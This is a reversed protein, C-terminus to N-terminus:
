GRHDSGAVTSGPLRLAARSARLTARGPAVSKKKSDSGSTYAAYWGVAADASQDPNGFLYIENRGPPFSLSLLQIAFDRLRMVYSRPGGDGPDDVLFEISKFGLKLIGQLPLSTGVKGDAGPLKVGLYVVPDAGAPTPSWGALLELTLAASGALAGLSGLDIMYDLGYWPEVLKSQDLPAGISVFGLTSPDGAPLTTQESALAPDPTTILRRLRVPFRAALSDARAVSNAIDFSLDGDKLTFVTTGVPDALSFAMGVALNGFRLYGDTIVPPVVRDDQHPGWCFPDFGDAEYFRLAGSMQFTADVAVDSSNPDAAKSTLLQISLVEASLLAGGGDLLFLYDEHSTFVYSDHKSGDPATQEQYAGTLILNNGHDAPFLRTEAGFLRNVMLEVRSAFGSIASNHFAITLQLVRFAFAIDSSFYQDVPNEYDILGFMATQNFNLLPPAPAQQVTIQFPTVSFGIHHAYFSKPDIGAALAQLPGPLADLPVGVSLALIGTWGSDVVIRNFEAYASDTRARADAIVAAIDDSAHQVGDASAAPSWTWAGPDAALDALSRGLMFKFIIYSNPQPKRDPNSWGDPSLLFAWDHVLATLLGGQRGFVNIQDDTLTSVATKLGIVFDTRTAYRPYGLGKLYSTVTPLIEPPWDRTAPSTRLISLDHATLQYGVSGARGFVFPDGLVMFLNNTQLAQRFDGGVQTFRLDPKQTPTPNSQAIGVWAWQDNAAVGVALGQTTVGITEADLDAAALSASWVADRDSQGAVLAAIAERRTPALANREIALAAKVLSADIDRFPAMPFARAGDAAPLDAASIELFKLYGEAATVPDSASFLPADEPQAYYTAAVYGWSTDGLETLSVTPDGEGPGPAFAPQGAIFDIQSGTAAIGLYELGSAGCILRKLPDSGGNDDIVRIAFSGQPALYLRGRANGGPSGIDAPAFHFALRAPVPGSASPTLAIGYGRATAFGSGLEISSGSGDWAFLGINARTPDRLRLVDISAYLALAAQPQRLTNFAIAQVAGDADPSFYRIGCDLQKFADTGSAVDLAFRWAGGTAGIALSTSGMRGQLTANPTQLASTSASTDGFVFGWGAANNDAVGVTGGGRLTLRYGNLDFDTRRTVTWISNQQTADVRSVQWDGIRQLPNAIWLLRPPAPEFSQLFQVLKADFGDPATVPLFVYTGNQAWTASFSVPGPPTLGTTHFGVSGDGGTLLWLGSATSFTFTPEASM